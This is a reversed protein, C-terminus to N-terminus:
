VEMALLKRYAEVSGYFECGAYMGQYPMGNRTDTEMAREVYVNDNQQKLEIKFKAVTKVTGDNRRKVQVTEIYTATRRELELNTLCSGVM